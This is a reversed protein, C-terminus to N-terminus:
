HDNGLALINMSISYFMYESFWYNSNINLTFLILLHCLVILLQMNIFAIKSEKM